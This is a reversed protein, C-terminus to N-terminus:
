RSSVDDGGPVITRESLLISMVVNDCITKGLAPGNPRLHGLRVGSRAALMAVSGPGNHLIQVSSAVSCVAPPMERNLSSTDAWAWVVM